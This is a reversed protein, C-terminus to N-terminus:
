TAVFQLDWPYGVSVQQVEVRVSLGWYGPSTIDDPTTTYEFVGSAADVPTTTRESGENGDPGEFRVTM